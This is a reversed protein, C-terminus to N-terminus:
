SAREKRDEGDEEEEEGDDEGGEASEDDGEEEGLDDDDVADPLENVDDEARPHAKALLPGLAELAEAFRGVDGDLRVARDLKRKADAWDAGLAAEDIGVDAVVSVRREFLSVYVLVGARAATRGVGLEVFAARAGKVVGDDMLAQSVLARRVPAVANSLLAGAGFLGALEAPLFTWDFPEPHYLFLCLGGFSALSGLLYDAHRYFGSAKRVAVVVEAGTQAEVREIAARVRKKADATLFGGASM